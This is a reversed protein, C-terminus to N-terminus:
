HRPRIDCRGCICRWHGATVRSVFAGHPAFACDRRDLFHRGGISSSQDRRTRGLSCSTSRGHAPVDVMAATAIVISREFYCMGLTSRHSGLLPLWEDGCNTADGARVQRCSDRRAAAAWHNARSLDQPTAM